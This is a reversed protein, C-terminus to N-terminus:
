SQLGEHIGAKVKVSMSCADNSHWTNLLMSFCQLSYLISGMMQWHTNDCAFPSPIGGFFIVLLFYFPNVHLYGGMLQM